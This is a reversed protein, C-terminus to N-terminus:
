LHSYAMACFLIIAIIMWAKAKGSHDTSGRISAPATESNGSSTQTEIAQRIAKLEGLQKKQGRRSVIWFIHLPISIILGPLFFFLFVLHLFIFM